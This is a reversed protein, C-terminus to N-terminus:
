PIYCIEKLRGDIEFCHASSADVQIFGGFNGSIM